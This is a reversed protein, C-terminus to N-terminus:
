ARAPVAPLLSRYFDRIKAGSAAASLPTLDPKGRAPRCLQQLQESTLPPEYMRIWEAGLLGALDSAYATRPTIVPKGCSLAYILSGSHLTKEFPLVVVDAASVTALLEDDSLRGLALHVRPDEAALEPLAQSLEPEEMAGAILLRLNPASTQGFCRVLEVVGKYRRIAGAFALLTHSDDIGHRQRVSRQCHALDVAYPAHWIFTSPKRAFAPYHARALALTSPSLTVFGHVLQAISGAYYPWALKRVRGPDHPELNHVCWVLRVGRARLAALSAVVGAARALGGAKGFGWLVREPWHIHLVDLRAELAEWPQKVSRVQVGASRLGACFHGVYPNDRFEEGPWSGVVLERTAAPGSHMTRM